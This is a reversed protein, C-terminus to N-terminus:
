GCGGRRRSAVLARFSGKHFSQKPASQGRLCLDTLGPDMLVARASAQAVGEDLHSDDAITVQGFQQALDIAHRDDIKSTAVWLGFRDREDGLLRGPPVHRDRQMEVLLRQLDRYGVPRGVVQAGKQRLGRSM